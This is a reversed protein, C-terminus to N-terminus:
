IKKFINMFIIFHRPIILACINKLIAGPPTLNKRALDFDKKLFNHKPLHNPFLSSALLTVLDIYKRPAFFM